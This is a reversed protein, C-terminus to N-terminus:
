LTTSLDVNYIINDYIKQANGVVANIIEEKLATDKSVHRSLRDSNSIRNVVYTQLDEPRASIELKPMGRFKREINEIFRSTVMLNIVPQLAQLRALLNVQFQDESPLEDLADIVVFVKSYRSLESQLLKLVEDLNPHTGKDLHSKYLDEADTSILARDEILQVWLSAILNILTQVDEEKYSCYICVIAIDSKDKFQEHLQDVIISRNVYVKILKERHLM